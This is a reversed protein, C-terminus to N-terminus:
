SPNGACIVYFTGSTATVSHVTIVNTAWTYWYFYLPSFGPTVSCAPQYTWSHQYTITCSTAAAMACSGAFDATALQNLHNGITTNGTGSASGVQLNSAYYGAGTGSTSSAITTSNSGGEYVIFGGTGANVTANVTVATAAQSDIDTSGNQNAKFVRNPITASADQITFSSPSNAEIEWNESATSWFDANGYLTLEGNTDIAAVQTPSAGGSGFIVGGTGSNTSTNFLVAGSGASNLATQNNTSSSGPNYQTIALRYVNNILDQIEYSQAGATADTLGYIWRYGWDTQIETLRGRENGLGIGLRQHDTVTADAQSAYWDGRLQNWSRHFADAWSNRSGNDTLQGTYITQGLLVQNYSAGSDALFQTNSTEFRLGTVTNQVAHAGFHMVTDCGEVDGGVFTNGDGGQIDIGITGTIPSGAAEPCNIHLKLYTGANAYDDVVSGTLHGTLLLATNFGNIVIDTFTGGSYDGTGDLTIGTMDTSQDGGLYLNELKIEKTRHFDIAHANPSAYLTQIDLNLMQFGTTDAAHTPDGIQWATGAAQFNWITGGYLGSAASGGQFSCGEITVNRTGAAITVPQTATITACPLLIRVNATNITVTNVWSIANTCRRADVIGGTTASALAIATNIPASLEGTASCAVQITPYTVYASMNVTPRSTDNQFTANLSGAPAAPTSHNFNVGTGQAPAHTAAALMLLLPAALHTLKM